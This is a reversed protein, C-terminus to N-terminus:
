ALTGNIDFFNFRANHKKTTGSIKPGSKVGQRFMFLITTM